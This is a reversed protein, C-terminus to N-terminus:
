HLALRASVGSVGSVGSIFPQQGDVGPLPGQLDRSMEPCRWALPLEESKKLTQEEMFWWRMTMRPFFTRSPEKNRTPDRMAFQDQTLFWVLHPELLDVQRSLPVAPGEVHVRTLAPPPSPANTSRTWTQRKLVALALVTAPESPAVTIQNSSM